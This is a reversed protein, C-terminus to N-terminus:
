VKENCKVMWFEDSNEKRGESIELGKLIDCWELSLCFVTNFIVLLFFCM